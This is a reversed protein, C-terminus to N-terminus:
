PRPDHGRQAGVALRARLSSRDRLHRQGHDQGRRGYGGRAEARPRGGASRRRSRSVGGSEDKRRLLDLLDLADFIAAGHWDNNFYVYADGAWSSLDEAWPKLRERGYRGHYKLKLPESGHFRVYRFGGTFRPPAKAVLDHECFAAGHKDLLDCVEPTYWAEGRFEVAHRLDKPQAALFADLRPLDPRSMMPPLQWLVVSLKPRLGGSREYYRGLGALPDKLKKMHTLFRSGKAAFSFGEPVADRWREACGEPPLRYFTGNLEVTDFKSAYYKLWDCAPLGKPYFIGKWDGYVYGSTGVRVM